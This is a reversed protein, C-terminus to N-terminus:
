PRGQAHLLQQLRQVDGAAFPQCREPHCMWGQWPLEVHRIAEIEGDESRALVEFGPPCEALSWAHFSNVQANLTGVLRHQTGVHGSVARLPTGAWHALMQMGRCLGLVPLRHYQAYALLAQETLDRERVQGIDNGGSLLIADPQLAELWQALAQGCFILRNSVPLPLGGAAVVFEILDQDLADRTEPRDPWHDVRQSVAIRM